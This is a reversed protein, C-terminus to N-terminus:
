AIAGSPNSRHVRAHERPLAQVPSLQSRGRQAGFFRGVIESSCGVHTAWPTAAFRSWRPASRGHDRSLGNSSLDIPLPLIRVGSSSCGDGVGQRRRTRYRRITVSCRPQRRNPATRRRVHSKGYTLRPVARRTQARRALAACEESCYRRGRDCSGCVAFLRSCAAVGCTALRNSTTQVQRTSRSRM